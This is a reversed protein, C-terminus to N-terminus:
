ETKLIKFYNKSFTTLQSYFNKPILKVLEQQSKETWNKLYTGFDILYNKLTELTLQYKSQITKKMENLKEDMKLNVYTENADNVINQIQQKKYISQLSEVVKLLLYEFKTYIFQVTSLFIVLAIHLAITFPNKTKIESKTEPQQQTQETIESM